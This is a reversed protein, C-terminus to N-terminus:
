RITFSDTTNMIGNIVTALAATQVPNSGTRVVSSGISIYKLADEETESFRSIEDNYFRELINLEKTDPFRGIGLLFAHKLQDALGDPYEFIINEAMVRSAELFQPDNLLVLAQLPTSTQRRKVSCFSRDAVDFITMSPPPSSRKWITYLSRRYLNDDSAVEYKYRWHKNSLESWLGNPQYPYVSAGGQNEFLLGSIALANDRIMEAPLRFSPGRALLVNKPDVMALEPTIKSSQQYTASLMITKHLEKIDWGSDMFTVALWDLLEPHSPLSGQNGFDDSTTVIGEGFHMQWIRNVYVRATLPNNKDFLWKSLGLRNKPLEDNFPMVAEPVGPNVEEGHADYAGRDLIYTKRPKPLDGLVMIEPIANIEDTLKKRLGKLDKKADITQISKTKVYFDTLLEKNEPTDPNDIIHEFKSPNHRMLIELGSLEKDFIRLEDVGGGKFAKLKDRNGLGFGEFGYTHINREFLISKYLHNINIKTPIEIGNAYLRIGNADGSGDYTVGIDTWEKEAIPNESIVEIANTPWSFAMTFRLHNNELFLSYGKLGLRLNECHYFVSAEEYVENPYLSVEISFPDTQDFWGTKESFRIRTFDNIFIGNNKSGAKIVPDKIFASRLKTVKNKDEFDGKVGKSLNDFAYYDMLGKDLEAIVDKQVNGRDTFWNRFSAENIRKSNDIQVEKEEILNEMYAILKGEEKSTLLLSPGPTQDPGYVATGMENTSNFFGFMKYHDKQSIADYKHDHCRACEVTLGLFAKSVTATRDAVYETRYEEFIIGAESNKKHLRNFATALVSETDANPLLDGALQKTVFEEYSMNTNFSNIVWDRWPSFDRHKDDLYGDSDAYRAVDMWNAAMREGYAPSQLLNTILNEYSKESTDAVFDKIDQYTPPLGTLSFSARRILIEKQAKQSPKLNSKELKDAVFVDITNKIWESSKIKPLAAIEPKIFSWHPSYEAGQEIWKTLTAIEVDTLPVNFEPPPMILEEDKSFIRKFVESNSPKRPVIAHNGSKLLAYAGEAEDLRLGAKQNDMDPGHCAFCKDSLIPKVHYNFSIQEPLENYAREVEAPM